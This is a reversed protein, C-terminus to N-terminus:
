VGVLARGGKVLLPVSWFAIMIEYFAFYDYGIVAAYNILIETLFYNTM